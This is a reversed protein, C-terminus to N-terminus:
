SHSDEAGLPCDARLLAAAQELLEGRVRSCSGFAGYARGNELERDIADLLGARGRPSQPVCTEPFLQRAADVAECISRERVQDNSWFDLATEAADRLETVLKRRDLDM